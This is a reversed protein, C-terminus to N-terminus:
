RNPFLTLKVNWIINTVHLMVTRMTQLENHCEFPNFHCCDVAVNNYIGSVSDPQLTIRSKFGEDGGDETTTTNHRGTPAHRGCAWSNISHSAPPTLINRPRAPVSTRADSHMAEPRLMALFCELCFKKLFLSCCFSFLVFHSVCRLNHNYIPRICPVHNFFLIKPLGYDM